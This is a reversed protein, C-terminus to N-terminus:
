VSTLNQWEMIVMIKKKDMKFGDKSIDIGLFELKPQYKKLSCTLKAKQLLHLMCMTSGQSMNPKPQITSSPIMSTPRLKTFIQLRYIQDMMEDIHPLLCSDEITIDNLKWYNIVPQHTRDKKWIFFMSAVMLCKMDAPEAKLMEDLVKWCETHEEQNM